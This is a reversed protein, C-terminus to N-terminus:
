RTYLTLNPRRLPAEGSAAIAGRAWTEPDFTAIDAATAVVPDLIRLTTLRIPQSPILGFWPLRRVAALSGLIRAHQTQLPGLPLLLLELDLPERGAPGARVGAVIPTPDDCVAGLFATVTERDGAHFIEHFPVGKLERLFLEAINSGALRFVFNQSPDGALIFADNLLPQIALPDIASRAPAAAEGRLRTWYAHLDRTVQQKMKFRYGFAVDSNQASERWKRCALGDGYRLL